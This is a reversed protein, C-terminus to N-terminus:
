CHHPGAYGGDPPPTLARSAPSLGLCALAVIALRLGTTFFPQAIVTTILPTTTKINTNM